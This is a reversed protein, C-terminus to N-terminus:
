TGNRDRARKDHRIEKNLRTKDRWKDSQEALCEDLAAINVEHAQLQQTFQEARLRKEQEKLQLASIKERLPGVGQAYDKEQAELKQLAEQQAKLRGQAQQWREEERQRQQMTEDLASQMSQPEM